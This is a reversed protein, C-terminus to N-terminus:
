FNEGKKGIKNVKKIKDGFVKNIKKLEPFEEDGKNIDVWHIDQSLNQKKEEENKIESEKIEEVVENKKVIDFTLKIDSKSIESIINKILSINEEIIKKQFETKLSIKWENEKFVIESSVLFNYISFKERSIRKLLKQWLDPFDVPNEVNTNQNTINYKKKENDQEIDNHYKDPNTNDIKEIKKIIAEIDIPTEIITYFAMEAALSINDSFKIEDIIRNLKRSIKAFIFPSLDKTDFREDKKFGAANFFAQSFSDRLDKVITLVDYGELNVKLFTDHIKSANRELIGQYFDKIIEFPSHGVLSAVDDFKVKKNSFSSVRDLLTLADRMAGAASRAILELANKEYEIKEKECIEVLRKVIVSDSMPRFRFTQCRSIITLPVKNVETTAMIFIIHEPPEEMTKLLANFASNSLMHVEDLIYIKYKDRSPALNLNDIIVDRINQVQTHSAADIEIVDMSRSQSIEICSDCKNCPNNKEPKHCNLSKSLIRAMSTKGCGRPGYFLYAHSIKGNSLSASITQAISDQGIVEDFRQPRYKLALNEYAM